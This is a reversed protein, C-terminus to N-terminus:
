ITMKQYELNMINYARQKYDLITEDDIPEIMDGIKIKIKYNRNLLFLKISSHIFSEGNDSNHHISNDEYKIIVPLVPFKGVFAGNGTFETINDPNKPTNGSGPAIFLVPDGEKRKSVSELINKTTENKCVYINGIKKHLSNNYGFFQFIPNKLIVCYFKQFTSLVVFADLISTHNFISIFKKDSYVYKDYKLLDDDDIEINISLISIVTKGCMLAILYLTNKNCYVALKFFIFLSIAFFIIKFPVFIFHLFTKIKKLINM